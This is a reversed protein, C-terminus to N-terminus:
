FDHLLYKLGISQKKDVFSMLVPKKRYFDQAFDERWPHVRSLRRDVRCFYAEDFYNSEVGTEKFSIGKLTIPFSKLKNRPRVLKHM